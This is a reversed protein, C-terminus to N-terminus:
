NDSNISWTLQNPSWSLTPSREGVGIIDIPPFVASNEPISTQQECLKDWTDAGESHHSPCQQYFDEPPNEGRKFKEISILQPVSTPLIIYESSLKLLQWCKLTIQSLNNSFRPQAQLTGLGRCGPLGGPVIYM